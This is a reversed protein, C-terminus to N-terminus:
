NAASFSALVEALQQRDGPLLECVRESVGDKEVFHLGSAGFEKKLRDGDFFEVLLYYDLSSEVPARVQRCQSPIASNLRDVTATDDTSFKVPARSVLDSKSYSVPALSDFSRYHVDVHTYRGTGGDVVEARDCGMLGVAAIAISMAARFM